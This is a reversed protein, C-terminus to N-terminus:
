LKKIQILRLAFNERKRNIRNKEADVWSKYVDISEFNNVWGGKSENTSGTFAVENGDIDKFIGMKEHYIERQPIGDKDVKIAIKIDLNNTSVLWALAEFRNREITGQIEEISRSLVEEVVQDRTKYGDMIAKIDEPYFQPSVVLRIKGNNDIFHAFGKAAESLGSSSFYGAARDFHSSEILCNIYLNIPPSSDTRYEELIEIDKLM